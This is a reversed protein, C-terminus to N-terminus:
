YQLLKKVATSMAENFRVRLEVSRKADAIKWEKASGAATIASAAETARRDIATFEDMSFLLESKALAEAEVVVAEYAGLAADIEERSAFALAALAFFLIVGCFLVKKM